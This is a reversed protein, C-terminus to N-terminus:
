CTSGATQGRRSNVRYFTEICGVMCYDRAHKLKVGKKVLSPILVEDNFVAPFGIGTTIVKACAKYFKDGTKDHFRASLNGRPTRVSETAELCIYSLENTADRGEATVGGICINQVPNPIGPEELKRWFHKVLNLAQSRTLRKNKIDRKYVPYMYQDFRGLAMAGRGEICFILHVFWVLQIAEQFTTPPQVTLRSCIKAHRKIFRAAANLTILVAVLFEKENQPRTLLYNQETQKIIGSLGKVLLTDYDVAAHDFNSGFHRKGMEAALKLYTDAVPQTIGAPLADAYCGRISGIILEDPQVIIGANNLIERLALARRVHMPENCSKSYSQGEWVPRLDIM